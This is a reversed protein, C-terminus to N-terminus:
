RNSANAPPPRRSWSRSRTAPSSARAATGRPLGNRAFNRRAAAIAPAAADVTVTARAGGAAAYISFGGTYGFLNLVSRGGALTRM